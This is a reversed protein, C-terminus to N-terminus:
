SENHHVMLGSTRCCRQRRRGVDGSQLSRVSSLKCRSLCGELLKRPPKDHMTPPLMVCRALRGVLLPVSLKVRSERFCPFCLKALRPQWSAGSEALQKKIEATDSQPHLRNQATSIFERGALPIKAGFRARAASRKLRDTEFGTEQRM